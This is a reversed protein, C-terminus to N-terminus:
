PCARHAPYQRVGRLSLRSRLDHAMVCGRTGRGADVFRVDGPCSPFDNGPIDGAHDAVGTPAAPRHRPHRDVRCSRHGPCRGASISVEPHRRREGPDREGPDIGNDPRADVRHQDWAAPRQRDPCPATAHDSGSRRRDRLRDGGASGGRCGGASQRRRDM